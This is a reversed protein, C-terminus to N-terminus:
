SARGALFASALGGVIAIVSFGIGFWHGVTLVRNLSVLYLLTSIAAVSFVLAMAGYRLRIRDIYRTDNVSRDTSIRAGIGKHPLRVARIVLAITLLGPITAISMDTTTVGPVSLLLAFWLGQLAITLLVIMLQM